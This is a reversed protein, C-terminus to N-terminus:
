AEWSVLVGLYVPDGFLSIKASCTCYNNYVIQSEIVFGFLMLTNFPSIIVVLYHWLNCGNQM